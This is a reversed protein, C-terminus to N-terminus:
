KRRESMASIVWTLIWLGAMIAPIMDNSTFYVYVLTAVNIAFLLHYFLSPPENGTSKQKVKNLGTALAILKLAAIFPTYVYVVWKGWEGILGLGWLVIVATIAIDVLASQLWKM